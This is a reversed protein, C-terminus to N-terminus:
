QSNNLRPKGFKGMRECHFSSFEWFTCIFKERKKKRDKRIKKGKKKERKSKRAKTEQM